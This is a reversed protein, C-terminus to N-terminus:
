KGGVFEVAWLQGKGSIYQGTKIRAIPYNPLPVIALCQQGTTAGRETFSFDHNDFGASKRELPLDSNDQPIFHLFFRATTDGANCPNKHYILATETSYVDFNGRAVQNGYDGATIATAAANYESPNKLSIAVSWTEQGIGSLYQGTRISAIPYDPLPAIAICNGDFMAGRWIFGFDLNDFGYEKRDDPLHNRDDPTTHLFFKHATDAARCEHKYYIANDNTIFLDYKAQVTPAGYAGSTLANYVERYKATLATTNLAATNFLFAKQNSPTLLHTEPYLNRNGSIIFDYYQGCQPGCDSIPKEGPQIVNGALYYDIIFYVDQSYPDLEYMQIYVKKGGGGRTIGQIKQFDSMVAANTDLLPARAQSETQAIHYASLAFIPLAIIAAITALHRIRQRMGLLILTFLVLPIGVYFVSELDHLATNSRMGIGWCLGSLALTALLMRPCRLLLLGLLSAGAAAIGIAAYPLSIPGTPHAHHLGDTHVTIAYPLAMRGIRRFQEPLFASWAVFESRAANYEPNQGTRKIMSQVSSLEMFPIEGDTAAYENAFNFSLLAIGFLLAVAGLRLYRSRILAAAASRIHTTVNNGPTNGRLSRLTEQALGFVIFPLLLAYIHWGILLAICTKTLLQTFRGEQMYITMGHFVLMIGFLDMMGDNAVMDSLYLIYYSSFALLTAAFAIQRSATIRRLSLYALTAAAAFMLLMLMRAAYLKASLDDGFPSIALKILAFSGIPFRNYMEYAPAGDPAPYQRLFMLFNHAPSLNEALALNESTNWDHGHHYQYFGGWGDGFLYITSIALLLLVLPLRSALRM